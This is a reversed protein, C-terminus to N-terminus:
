APSRVTCRGGVAASLAAARGRGLRTRPPEVWAPRAVTPSVNPLRAAACVPCAASGAPSSSGGVSRASGDVMSGRCGSALFRRCSCACPLPCLSPGAWGPIGAAAPAAAPEPLTAPSAVAWGDARPATPCPLGTLPPPVLREPYNRNIQRKRTALPAPALSLGRLAMASAIPLRSTLRNAPLCTAHGASRGRDWNKGDEGRHKQSVTAEPVVGMM